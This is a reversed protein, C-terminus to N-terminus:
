NEPIDFIQTETECESNLYKVIIQSGDKTFHASTINEVCDFLPKEFKDFRCIEKGSFMEYIYVESHGTASVLNGFYDTQGYFYPSVKSNEVDFFKASQTLVGTGSQTWFHVIGSDYSLYPYKAITDSEMVKGNKDYIVYENMLHIPTVACRCYKQNEKLYPSFIEEFENYIGECYNVNGSEMPSTSIIDNDCIRFFAVNEGDYINVSFYSNNIGSFEVQETYFKTEKLFAIFEEYFDENRNSFYFNEGLFKRASIRITVYPNDFKITDTEGFSSLSILNEQPEPKSNVSNNSCGCFVVISFILLIYFLNKIVNKM